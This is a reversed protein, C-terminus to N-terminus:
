ALYTDLRDARIEHPYLKVWTAPDQGCAPCGPFAGDSPQDANRSVAAVDRWILECEDCMAVVSQCTVCRRLHLLGNTCFACQNVYPLEKQTM